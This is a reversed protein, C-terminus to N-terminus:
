GTKLLAVTVSTVTLIFNFPGLTNSTGVVHITLTMAPANFQVNAGASQVEEERMVEREIDAKAAASRDATWSENLYARIDTCENPAWFWAGRPNSLRRAIRQALSVLGSVPNGLPDLDPFGGLDVGLDVAM